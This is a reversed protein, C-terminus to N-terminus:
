INKEFIKQIEDAFEDLTASKAKSLNSDKLSDEYEFLLIPLGYYYSSLRWKRFLRDSMESKQCVLAAVNKGNWSSSKLHQFIDERDSFPVFLVNRKKLSQQLLQSRDLDQDFLVVHKKELLNSQM